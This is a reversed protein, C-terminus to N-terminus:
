RISGSVRQSVRRLTNFSVRKVSDKIDSCLYCPLTPHEPNDINVAAIIWWRRKTFATKQKVSLDINPLYFDQYRINGAKGQLGQLKLKIRRYVHSESRCDQFLTVLNQLSWFLHKTEEDLTKAPIVDTTYITRIKEGVKQTQTRSVRRERYESLDIADPIDSLRPPMAHIRYDRVDDTFITSTRKGYRSSLSLSLKLSGAESRLLYPCEVFTTLPNEDLIQSLKTPM